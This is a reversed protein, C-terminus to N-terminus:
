FLLRGALYSIAMTATGIVLSRLLMGRASVGAARAAALSTFTLAVVVAIFIAWTEVDVPVLYTILLPILAGLLYATGAAIGVMIPLDEPMPEDIGHEWDLQAALADSAMLQEAVQRALDPSLGRGTWYRVLEDLEAEPNSAIDRKEQETLLVEAERDAAAEAWNAGAVTLAGVIAALAATFHLV